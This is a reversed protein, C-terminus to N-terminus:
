DLVLDNIKEEQDAVYIFKNNEIKCAIELMRAIDNPTVLFNKVPEVLLSVINHSFMTAIMGACFFAKFFTKNLQHTINSGSDSCLINTAFLLAISSIGHTLAAHRIEVGDRNTIMSQMGAGVWILGLSAGLSIGLQYSSNAQQPQTEPEQFTRSLHYLSMAAKMILEVKSTGSSLKKIGGICLLGYILGACNQTEPHAMFSSGFLAWRCGSIKFKKFSTNIKKVDLSYLDIVLDPEGEELVLDQRLNTFRSGRLGSRWHLFSTSTAPWFSAYIGGEGFTQLSVHGVRKVGLINVKNASWVRITVRNKDSKILEEKLM